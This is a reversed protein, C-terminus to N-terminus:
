SAPTDEITLQGEIAPAERAPGSGFGITM